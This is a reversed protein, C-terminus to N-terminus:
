QLIPQDNNKTILWVVVFSVLLSFPLVAMLTPLFNMDLAECTQRGQKRLIFTWITFFIVGTMLLSTGAINNWSRLRNKGIVLTIMLVLTISVYSDLLRGEYGWPHFITLLFTRLGVIITTLFASILTTKVGFVSLLFLLIPLFFLAIIWLSWSKNLVEHYYSRKKYNCYDARKLFPQQVFIKAAKLSALRDEIIRFYKNHIRDHRNFQYGHRAMFILLEEVQESSFETDPVYVFFEDDIVTHKRNYLNIHCYHTDSGLVEDSYLCATRYAVASTFTALNLGLSLLCFVYILWTTLLMKFDSFKVQYRVLRVVWFLSVFGLLVALGIQMTILGDESIVNGRGVILMGFIAMVVNGLVLSFWGFDHVRTRWVHPYNIKLYHDIRRLFSPYLWNM